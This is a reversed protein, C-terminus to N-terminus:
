SVKINKISEALELDFNDRVCFSSKKDMIIHGLSNPKEEKNKKYFIYNTVVMGGCEIFVINKELHLTSHKSNNILKLGKGDHKYFQDALNTHVPVVKNTNYILMSNIAKDIYLVKRFPAEHYLMVLIDPKKFKYVENISELIANRFDTNEISYDKNRLHYYLKKKYKKKIKKLLGIDSSTIIVKEIKKSKLAEDISWFILPKNGLKELSLCNDAVNKGRVPIVCVIKKKNSKKNNSFKEYILSRTKLIKITNSSLSNNHQRYYWLPENLNIIKYKNIFKLWLIYGDQRDFEEDYLNAEMLYDKRILCCAGHAPIDSFKKNKNLNIKKERRIIKLDKDVIYFDSYVMAIEENRNIAKYFKALANSRLQDDADLRMIYRGKSARIAINSSKILGKNKHQIVRISIKKQTIYKKIIEFSGDLSGDDIIIIEFKKFTQKLLSQIANEIYNGYNYNPIYVSIKINNV